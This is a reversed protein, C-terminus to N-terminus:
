QACRGEMLRESSWLLLSTKEAMKQLIKLSKLHIKLVKPVIQVTLAEKQDIEASEVQNQHIKLQKLASKVLFKASIVLRRGPDTDDEFPKGLPDPNGEEM